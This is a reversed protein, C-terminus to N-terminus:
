HTTSTSTRKNKRYRSWSFIGTLRIREAYAAYEPFQMLHREETKARLYYVFSLISMGAVNRLVDMHSSVGWFPVTSLWWHINKAIFAPHKTFRYPGTDVLRRWTMNSFDLEFCATSTWYIIWSTALLGAWPWYLWDNPTLWDSWVLNDRQATMWHLIGNLPVYCITCVLWGSWTPDVSKIDNKLLKSNLCYGICGVLLDAALGFVFLLEVLRRTDWESTMRLLMFAIEVLGGLMIPLFFVKVMWTRILLQHEGWMWPRRGTLAQGLRWYGDEPVQLRRDAWHVYMPLLLLLVPTAFAALAMFSPFPDFGQHAILAGYVIVAVMCVALALSKQRVRTPDAARCAPSRIVPWLRPLLLPLATGLVLTTAAGALGIHDVLHALRIGMLWAGLWFVLQIAFM